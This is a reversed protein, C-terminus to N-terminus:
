ITPKWFGKQHLCIACLAILLSPKPLFFSHNKKTFRFMQKFQNIQLATLLYRLCNLERLRKILQRLSTKILRLCYHFLSLKLIQHLHKLNSVLTNIKQSILKRKTNLLRCHFKFMQKFQNMHLATLLYRLCNLERLRKILQRLCTKILRLLCYFLSLILIQTLTM